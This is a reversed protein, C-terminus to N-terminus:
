KKVKKKDGFKNALYDLSVVMPNAFGNEAEHLMIVGRFHNNGTYGKYDEFHPYAAGCVIGIQMEGNLVPRIAIDLVQKHGVVFSKGVTKLQSMAQGSYPKGSMPNSLYHVFNIGAIEIPKLFDYVEWGYSELDLLNYGIFDTFEPNDNSFRSIRQEHNGLTFVMRPNYVKEKNKKQRNQLDKMPSLLLEMGQRGAELDKSVRRGEFSRKGKDYSSLSEMDYFDGLNVIVDPKRDIIYQGIHSLYSLDHDPKVQCDPIVLIKM